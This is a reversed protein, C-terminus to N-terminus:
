AKKTGTSLSYGLGTDLVPRRHQYAPRWGVPMSKYEIPHEDEFTRQDQADEVAEFDGSEGVRSL